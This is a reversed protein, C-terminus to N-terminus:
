REGRYLERALEQGEIGNTTMLERALNWKKINAPPEHESSMFLDFWSMPSHFLNVPCPRLSAISLEVQRESARRLICRFCLREDPRALKAWAEDHLMPGADEADCDDCYSEPPAPSLGVYECAEDWDWDRQEMLWRLYATQQSSM